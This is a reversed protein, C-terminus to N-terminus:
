SWGRTAKPFETKFVEAAVLDLPREERSLFFKQDPSYYIVYQWVFRELILKGYPRWGTRIHHGLGKSFTNRTKGNRREGMKMAAWQYARPMSENFTVWLREIGQDACWRFTAPEFFQDITNPPLGPKLHLRHWVKASPLGEEDYRICSTMGEISETQTNVLFFLAGRLGDYMEIRLSKRSKNNEVDTSAFYKDLLQECAADGAVYTVCRHTSLPLAVEM